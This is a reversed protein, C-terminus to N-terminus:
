RSDFGHRWSRYALVRPLLDRSGKTFMKKKIKYKIWCGLALACSRLLNEQLWNEETGIAAAGDWIIIKKKTFCKVSKKSIWNKKSGESLANLEKSNRKTSYLNYLKSVFLSLTTDWLAFNTNWYYFNIKVIM